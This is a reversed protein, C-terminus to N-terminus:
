FCTILLFFFFFLSSAPLLSSVKLLNVCTSSTPLRYQDTGADRISCNPVLEKFGSGFLFFFYCPSLVM